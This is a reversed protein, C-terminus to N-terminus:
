ETSFSGKQDHGFLKLASLSNNEGVFLPITTHSHNRQSFGGTLEPMSIVDVMQCFDVIAFFRARHIKSNKLLIASCRVTPQM